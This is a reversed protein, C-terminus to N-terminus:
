YPAIVSVKFTTGFKDNLVPTQGGMILTRVTSYGHLILASPCTVMMSNPFLSGRMRRRQVMTTEWQM